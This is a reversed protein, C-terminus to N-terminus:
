FVYIMSTISMTAILSLRAASSTNQNALDSSATTFEEAFMNGSNIDVRTTNLGADLRNDPSFFCAITDDLGPLHYDAALQSTFEYAWKYVYPDGANGAGSSSINLYPYITQGNDFTYDLTAGTTDLTGEFVFWAPSFGGAPCLTSSGCSVGLAFTDSVGTPFSGGDPTVTCIAGSHENVAAFAHPTTLTLEVRLVTGSPDATPAKFEIAFTQDDANTHSISIDAHAWLLFFALLITLLIKM